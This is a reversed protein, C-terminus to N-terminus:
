HLVSKGLKKFSVLPAFVFLTTALLVVPRSNWL